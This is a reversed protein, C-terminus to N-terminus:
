KSVGVGVPQSAAERRLFRGRLQRGIAHDGNAECKVWITEQFLVRAAALDDPYLECCDCREVITWGEGAAPITCSPSAPCRIGSGDCGECGDDAAETGGFMWFDDTPRNLGSSKGSGETM